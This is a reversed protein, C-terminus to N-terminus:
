EDGQILAHLHMDHWGDSHLLASRQTGELTFGTKAAVRCSGKNEVAHCLRLRHLGLEDLAWRTLRRTADTVVGGGRAAPLIWYVIEASGGALDLDGWGILGVAEGEGDARAIAWFASRETRWRERMSAIRERADAETRPPIQNWLAIEPDLSAAVIAGADEARWPRLRMGNPLEFVPQPDRTMRGAPVVPPIPANSIM